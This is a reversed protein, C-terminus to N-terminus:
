PRPEAAATRAASPEPAAAPVSPRSGPLSCPQANGRCTKGPDQKQEDGLPPWLACPLGPAPPVRQDTRSLLACPTSRHTASRGAKGARITKVTDKTSEGPLSASNGGDGQPHSIRVGPRAAVDGSSKVCLGRADPGCSKETRPRDRRITLPKRTSVGSLRGAREGAGHRVADRSSERNGARDDRRGRRRQRTWRWGARM